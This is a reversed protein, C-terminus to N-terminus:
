AKERREGRVINELIELDSVSTVTVAPAIVRVKIVTAVAMVVICDGNEPAKEKEPDICQAGNIGKPYKEWVGAISDPDGVIVGIIAM